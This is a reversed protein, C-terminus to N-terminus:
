HSERPVGSHTSMRKDGVSVHPVPTLSTWVSLSGNGPSGTVPVGRSLCTRSCYFPRSEWLNWEGTLTGPDQTGKSTRTTVLGLDIESSLLSRQKVPIM